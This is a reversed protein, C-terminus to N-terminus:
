LANYICLIYIITTTIGKHALVMHETSLVLVILPKLSNNAGGCVLRYSAFLQKFTTQWWCARSSISPHILNSFCTLQSKIFTRVMTLHGAGNCWHLELGSNLEPVSCLSRVTLFFYYINPNFDRM